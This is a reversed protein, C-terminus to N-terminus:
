NEFVLSIRLLDKEGIVYFKGEDELVDRNKRLHEIYGKLESSNWMFQDNNSGPVIHISTIICDATCTQLNFTNIKLLM